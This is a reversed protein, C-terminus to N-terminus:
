TRFLGAKLASQIKDKMKAPDKTERKIAAIVQKPNDGDFPPEGTLLMFVIVAFSWVDSAGSQNARALAQEGHNQMQTLKRAAKRHTYPLVCRPVSFVDYFRLTTRFGSGTRVFSPTSFSPTVFSPMTRFFSPTNRAFSPTTRGHSPAIFSPTPPVEPPLYFPTGVLDTMSDGELYQRFFLM